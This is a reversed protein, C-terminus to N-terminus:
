SYILAFHRNLSLSCYLNLILPHPYPVCSLKHLGQRGPLFRWDGAGQLDPGAACTHTGLVHTHEWCTLANGACSSHTGLFHPTHEWCMLTNEVCSSHTGLMHTHEWCMPHTGLVYSTHEWFVLLTNGACLHTGLVHTHERCMLTYGACLLTGLVYTHEQCMLSHTGLM